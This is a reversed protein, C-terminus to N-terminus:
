RAITYLRLNHFIFIIILMHFITIKWNGVNFLWLTDGNIVM